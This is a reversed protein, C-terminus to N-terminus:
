WTNLYRSVKITASPLSINGVLVLHANKPRYWENFFTLVANRNLNKIVDKDFNYKQYAHGQFLIKYLLRKGVIEPNSDKNLLSYYMTRKVNEIERQPFAPFLLMEKLLGLAQDLHDDLFSFTIVTYEPFTETSFSGGISEINEEIEASSLNQSGKDLMNATFTALGPTEPPSLSEGTYILLRSTIIPLNSRRIVSVILGNTLATSEIRPLSLTPLPEPLPPNRRFREQADLLSNFLILVSTIVCINRM